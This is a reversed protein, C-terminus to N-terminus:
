RFTIPWEPEIGAQLCQQRKAEHSQQNKIATPIKRSSKQLLTDPNIKTILVRKDDISPPLGTDRHKNDIFTRQAGCLSKPTNGTQPFPREFPTENELNLSVGFVAGSSM